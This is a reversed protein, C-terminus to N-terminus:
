LRVVKRARFFGASMDQGRRRLYITDVSGDVAVAVVVDGNSSETQLPKDLREVIYAVTGPEGPVAELAGIIPGM